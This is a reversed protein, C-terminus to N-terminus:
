ELSSTSWYALMLDGLQAVFLHRKITFGFWKKERDEEEEKERGKLNKKYALWITAGM